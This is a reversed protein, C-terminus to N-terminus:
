NLPFDRKKHDVLKKQIKNQLSYINCVITSNSILKFSLNRNKYNSLKKM